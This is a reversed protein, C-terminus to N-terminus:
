LREIEPTGFLGYPRVMLVVVLLIFTALMKYEGGMHDGEMNMVFKTGTKEIRDAHNDSRVFGSGDIKVHNSPLTLVEFIEKASADIHRSVSIRDTDTM